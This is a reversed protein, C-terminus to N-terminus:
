GRSQRASSFDMGSHIRPGGRLGVGSGKQGGFNSSLHKSIVLLDSPEYGTTRPSTVQERERKPGPDTHAGNSIGSTNRETKEISRM